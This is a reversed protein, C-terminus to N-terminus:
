FATERLHAALRRRHETADGFSVRDLQVRKLYRHAPSEWTFGIGGLVQLASQAVRLGADACWVKAISAAVSGEDDGVDLAWAAYLVASRMAEVDVLMDACRHKVAQFSGIPRDFQERERAYDVALNMAAESAGLTGASSFLAGLDHFREMADPGDVLTAPMSDFRLWALERSADMAPEARRELSELPVELLGDGCPAILVDASAGWMVPETVGTVAAGDFDLRRACSTGIAEGSLLPDRWASEDLVDLAHLQQALPVPAVHAGVETALVTAEVLGLGLGGHVEDVTVATWGQAVMHAWLDRDVGTLADLQEPSCRDVLLERAADRLAVQDDSLDFDM